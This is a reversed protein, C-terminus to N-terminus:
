NRSLSNEVTAIPLVTSAMIGVFRQFDAVPSNSAYLIDGNRMQFDQMAFYTAPDKMNAQYIVPVRGDARAAAGAANPLLTPDEWRFLFVGKADARGDQLGGVRGMAQALTLGTAEFNVEENKGTAGLVTFSYPQFLLTVIDNTRLAVNQRPDGIVSSLPMSYVRDGRTVQVTVKTIPQKTGGAAALADLLREGKPTLPVRMSNVVEGVVTVNATQNRLLRVMVQPLHAKRQLRATIDREIEPPTKGAVPVLGAFPVSILGSRDVLFEPLSTSRSTEQSSALATVGFLAAPPAEWITIELVDGVGVVTGVQAPGALASAFDLTAGRRLAHAAADNVDVIRIGNVADRPAGHLVAQRTPGASVCGSLLALAAIAAPSRPLRSMLGQGFSRPMFDGEHQDPDGALVVGEGVISLCEKCTSQRGGSAEFARGDLWAGKGLVWPFLLRWEVCDARPRAFGRQECERYLM